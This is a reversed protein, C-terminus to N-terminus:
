VVLQSSCAACPASVQRSPAALRRGIAQGSEGLVPQFNNAMGYIGVIPPNTVTVSSRNRNGLM